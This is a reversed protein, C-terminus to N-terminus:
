IDHKLINELKLKLSKTNEFLIGMIGFSSGVLLKEEDDDIFIMEEFKCGLIEELDEYAKPNPKQFEECYIKKKFFKLFDVGRDIDEVFNRRTNTFLYLEYGNKYLIELIGILETDFGDERSYIVDWFDFLIKKM